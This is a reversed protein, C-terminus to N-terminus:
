AEGTAAHFADRDAIPIALDDKMSGDVQRRREFADFQVFRLLERFVSVDEFIAFASQRRLRAAIIAFVHMRRRPKIAGTRLADYDAGAAFHIIRRIMVAREAPKLRLPGGTQGPLEGKLRGILM